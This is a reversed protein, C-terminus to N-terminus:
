QALKPKRPGTFWIYAANISAESVMGSCGALEYARARIEVRGNGTFDHLTVNKIEEPGMDICLLNTGTDRKMFAGASATPVELPVGNTDLEVAASHISFTYDGAVPKPFINEQAQVADAFALGMLIMLAAIYYNIRRDM